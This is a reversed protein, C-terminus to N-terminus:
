NSFPALHGLYLWGKVFSSRASPGIATAPDSSSGGPIAEIIPQRRNHELALEEATKKREM